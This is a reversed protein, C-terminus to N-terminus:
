EVMKPKECIANIAMKRDFATFSETSSIVVDKLDEESQDAMYKRYLKRSRIIEWSSWLLIFTLLVFIYPVLAAPDGLLGALMWMGSMVCIFVLYTVALVIPALVLCTIARAMRGAFSNHLNKCFRKYTYIMLCWKQPLNITTAVKRALAM